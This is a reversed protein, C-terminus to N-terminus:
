EFRQLAELAGHHDPVYRLAEQYSTKAKDRDNFVFFYVEGLLFASQGDLLARRQADTDLAALKMASLLEREVEKFVAEGKEKEGAQILTRGKYFLISAYNLHVSPDSSEPATGAYGVLALMVTACFVSTFSVIQLRRM